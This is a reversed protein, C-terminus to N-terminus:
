GRLWGWLFLESKPLKEMIKRSGTIQKRKHERDSLFEHWPCENRDPLKSTIQLIGDLTFNTSHCAKDFRSRKIDKAM